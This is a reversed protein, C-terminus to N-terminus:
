ESRNQQDSGYPVLACQLAHILRPIEHLELAGDAVFYVGVVDGNPLTIAELTLTEPDDIMGGSTGPFTARYLRGNNTELGM